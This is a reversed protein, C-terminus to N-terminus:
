LVMKERCYADWQPVRTWNHPHAALDVPYPQSNGGHISAIMPPQVDFCSVTVVKLDRLFIKDEGLWAEEQPTIMPPQVDFCSVTVVKLDRLFITDEGTAGPRKPADEFRKKREWTERWYCLSTGLAYDPRDNHYLWAEEQPTRWFLMDRYGVADAGSMQLLAVQDAIRTPHSWDDDDWHMIISGSSYGNAINRLRGISLTLGGARYESLVANVYTQAQFSKRAREAM